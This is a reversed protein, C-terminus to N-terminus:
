TGLIRDNIGLIEFASPHPALGVGGHMPGAGEGDIAPMAGRRGRGDDILDLGALPEAPVGVRRFLGLVDDFPCPLSYRSSPDVQGTPGPLTNTSGVGIRWSRSFVPLSVSRATANKAAAINVWSKSWTINGGFLWIRPVRFRSAQDAACNKACAKSWTSSSV